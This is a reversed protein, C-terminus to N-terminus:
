RARPRRTAGGPARSLAWDRFLRYCPAAGSCCRRVRVDSRDRGGLHARRPHLLQHRARGRLHRRGAVTVLLADAFSGIPSRGEHLRFRLALVCSSWDASWARHDLAPRMQAATSYGVATSCGRWRSTASSGPASTTSGNCTRDYWGCIPSCQACSVGSDTQNSRHRSRYSPHALMGATETRAPRKTLWRERDPESIVRVTRIIRSHVYSALGCALSIWMFRNGVLDSSVQANLLWYVATGLVIADYPDTRHAAVAARARTRRGGRAGAARPRRGRRVGRRLRQARLRRGARERDRSRDPERAAFDGWGIGLPHALGLHIARRSCSARTDDSLGVAGHRRHPQRGLWRRGARVLLRRAPSWSSRGAPRRTARRLCRGRGRRRASRGARLAGAGPQRRARAGGRVPLALPLAWWHRRPSIWASCCSCSWRWASSGRRPSRTSPRWRSAGRSPAPQRRQVGAAAVLWRWGSSCRPGCGAAGRRAATWCCSRLWSLVPLVVFALTAVKTPGYGVDSSLLVGPVFGLVLLALPGTVATPIRMPQGFRHVVCLAVAISAVVVPSSRSWSM